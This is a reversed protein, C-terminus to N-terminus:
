HHQDPGSRQQPQNNVQRAQVQVQGAQSQQQAAHEWAASSQAVPTAVAQGTGVDAYQKFPSNLDGQVAWARSGDDGLVAHDIRTMGSGHAAVALAAALNDSHQDSTRGQQADLRHVADRAQEYMANGSHARDQLGPMVAASAAPQQPIAGQIAQATKAGVIGDASLHHDRQFAEVAAHTGPGFSGDAQLARGNAATYGLQGLEGQLTRVTDGRAGERLAAAPTAHAPHAPDRTPQAQSNLNMGTLADNLRTERGSVSASNEVGYKTANIFKQIDSRGITDGLQLTGGPLTVANGELYSLMSNHAATQGGIGGITFQNDYDALALQLEPSGSIATAVAPNTTQLTGVLNDIRTVSTSLQDNTFTDLAAQPIAQLQTNLASVQDHSLGGHQSLQAIQDQTFGNSTLFGQVDGHNSGVDFQLVGFSYTSAAGGAYNFTNLNAANNGNETSYLVTRLQDTTISTNDPM